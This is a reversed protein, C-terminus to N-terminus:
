PRNQDPNGHRFPNDITYIEIAEKLQHMLNTKDDVTLNLSEPSFGEYHAYLNTLTSCYTANLSRNPENTNLMCSQTIIKLVNNKRRINREASLINNTAFGVDKTIVYRFNENAKATTNTSLEAVLAEFPFGYAQFNALEYHNNKVSDDLFYSVYVHPNGIMKGANLFSSVNRVYLLKALRLRTGLAQAEEEHLAIYKYIESQLNSFKSEFPALVNDFFAQPMFRHVHSYVCKLFATKAEFIALAAEFDNTNPEFRYCYPLVDYVTFIGNTEFSRRISESSEGALFRAELSHAYEEATLVAGKLSGIGCAFVLVLFRAYKSM